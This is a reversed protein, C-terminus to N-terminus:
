CHHEMIHARRMEHWEIGGHNSAAPGIYEFGQKRYFDVLHKECMLMVSALGDTEAQRILRRVLKSAIGRRRWSPEVAVTLVCFHIGDDDAGQVGKAEDGCTPSNTRVGNAIGVLKGGIWASWFYAGFRRYRYRFAEATAAAEPPYCLRELRYAADLEEERIPRLEIASLESM